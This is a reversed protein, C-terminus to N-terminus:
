NGKKQAPLKRRIGRLIIPIEVFNPCNLLTNLRKLEDRIDMLIAASAQEWTDVAPTPLNWNKDKHRAM